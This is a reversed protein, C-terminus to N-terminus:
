HSYFYSIGLHRIKPKWQFALKIHCSIHPHLNLFSPFDNDSTDNVQGSFQSPAWGWWSSKFLWSLFRLDTMKPFFYSFQEMWCHFTIRWDNVRKWKQTECIHTELMNEWTNWWATVSFDMFLFQATPTVSKLLNRKWQTFDTQNM